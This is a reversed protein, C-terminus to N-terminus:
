CIKECENHNFAAKSLNIADELTKAGAIFGDKHVFTATSVGTLKKLTDGELGYWANPFGKRYGNKNYKCPVPHIEYGGRNCPSIVFFINKANKSRIIWDNFHIFRHLVLINPNESAISEKLMKNFYPRSRVKTLLKYILSRIATTAIETAKEKYFDYSADSSILLNLSSIFDYISLINYTAYGEASKPTIGNAMADIGLSLNSKFTEWIFDPYKFDFYLSYCYEKGYKKWHEGFSSLPIPQGAKNNQVKYYFNTISKQPINKHLNTITIAALASTFIEEPNIECKTSTSVFKSNGKKGNIKLLSIKIIANFIFNALNIARLTAGYFNKNDGAPNLMSIFHPILLINHPEYEPSITPHISNDVADIGMVLNKELEYWLWMAKKPDNETLSACVKLGFEKWLLGFAAYPIPKLTNESRKLPHYGNGNKQHHDFKGNGTDFVILKSSFDCVFPQQTFSRFVVINNFVKELLVISFIDDAHFNGGHTFAFTMQKTEKAQIEQMMTELELLTVQEKLEIIQISM